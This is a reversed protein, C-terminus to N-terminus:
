KSRCARAQDRLNIYGGIARGTATNLGLKRLEQAVQRQEAASWAQIRPCASVSQRSTLADPIQCAMVGIGFCWMTVSSALVM